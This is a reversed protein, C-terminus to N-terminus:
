PNSGASRPEVLAAVRGGREQARRWDDASVVFRVPRGDVTNDPFVTVFIGAWGPLRGPLFHLIFQAPLFTQNEIRVVAGPPSAAVAKRVTGVVRETEAREWDHHDIHVPRAVLVVTRALAWLAATAYVARRAPQSRTALSALAISLLLTLLALPLYQYRPALAATLVPERYFAFLSARGVATMGDVAALLLGLGLLQRRVVPGSRSWGLVLVGAVVAAAAVGLPSPYGRDLGLFGLVLTCAGFALLHMGLVVAGPLAAVTARGTLAERFPVDADSSQARLVAYVAFIALATLILIGISRRARQTEPLALRVTLPFAACIALGATYCTAGVALLAGWWLARRPELIQGRAVTTGLAALVALVLTTLLVQGYASYWGLAGELVPCTGWLAAGVCALVLDGTFGRIARGLLLVNVLHTLLMTWFYARPDPGFVHFLAAFVLNRVLYFQGIFLESSFSWLTRTAIDYLHVFDDNWFYNDRIPAWVAAAALLPLIPLLAVLLASRSRHAPM